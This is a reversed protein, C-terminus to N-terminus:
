QTAKPLDVQLHHRVHNVAGGLGHPNNHLPTQLLRHVAVVLPVRQRQLTPTPERPPAAARCRRTKVLLGPAKVVSVAPPQIRFYSTMNMIRGSTGSSSTSLTM